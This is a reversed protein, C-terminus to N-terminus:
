LKRKQMQLVSDVKKELHVFEHREPMNDNHPITEKLRAEQDIEKAKAKRRRTMNSLVHEAKRARAKHCGLDVNKAKKKLEKRLTHQQQQRKIAKKFSILMKQQQKMLTPKRM